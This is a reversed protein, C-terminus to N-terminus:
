RWVDGGQYIEPQRACIFIQTSDPVTLMVVFLRNEFGYHQEDTFQRIRWPAQVDEDVLKDVRAFIDDPTEKESTDIQYIVMECVEDVVLMQNQSEDYLKIIM